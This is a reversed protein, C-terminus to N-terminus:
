PITPASPQGLFDDALVQDFLTQATIPKLHALDNRMDSLCAVLDRLQPDRSHDNRIQSNIHQIELDHLDTIERWQGNAGPISWPLQLTSGTQILLHRRQEEVYPIIERVQASWIRLELEKCSLLASHTQSKGGMHQAMGRRWQEPWSPPVHQPWGRELALDRLVPEPALMQEISEALLRAVV